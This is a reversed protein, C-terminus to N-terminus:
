RVCNYWWVIYDGKLNAVMTDPNRLDSRPYSFEVRKVPRVLVGSRHHYIALQSDVWEFAGYRRMFSALYKVIGSPLRSTCSNFTEMRLFPIYQYVVFSTNIQVSIIRTM